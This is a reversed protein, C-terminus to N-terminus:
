ECLFCPYAQHVVVARKKSTCDQKRRRQGTAKMNADNDKTRNGSVNETKGSRKEIIRREAALFIHRSSTLAGRSLLLVVSSVVPTMQVFDLFM